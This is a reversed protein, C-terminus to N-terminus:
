TRDEQEDTREARLDWSGSRGGEKAVVRVGEIVMSRDVAKLMDYATLLAVSAATLAEMEVGTRGTVRVTSRVRVGPLAADPEFTVDIRTLALTHCLPILDSTRKAAQIGAVQAVLLPDGKPTRGALLAELTEPRMVLAGEAVATRQTEAKDGVDVMRARGSEDLHTLRAAHSSM